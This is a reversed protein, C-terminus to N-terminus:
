LLCPRMSTFLEVPVYSRGEGMGGSLKPTLTLLGKNFLLTHPVIPIVM